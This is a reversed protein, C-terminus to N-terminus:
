PGGSTGVVSLIECKDTLRLLPHSYLPLIKMLVNSKKKKISLQSLPSLHSPYNNKWTCPMQSKQELKISLKSFPTRESKLVFM